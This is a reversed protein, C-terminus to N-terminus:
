GTRGKRPQETKALFVGLNVLSKGERGFGRFGQFHWPFRGFLCPFERSIILWPFGFFFWHDSFELLSHSDLIGQQFPKGAFKSAAPFNKGSKGTACFISDPIGQWPKPVKRCPFLSLFSLTLEKSEQATACTCHSVGTAAPPPPTPYRLELKAIETAM